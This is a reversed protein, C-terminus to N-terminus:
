EANPEGGRQIREFENCVGLMTEFDLKDIVIPEIMFITYPCFKGMIDAFNEYGKYKSIPVAALDDIHNDDFIAQHIYQNKDEIWYEVGHLGLRETSLVKM